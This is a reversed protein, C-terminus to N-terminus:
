SKRRSGSLALARRCPWGTQRHTYGGSAQWKGAVTADVLPSSAGTGAGATMAVPRPDIPDELDPTECRGQLNVGPRTCRASNEVGDGNDRRDADCPGCKWCRCNDCAGHSRLAMCPAAPALARPVRGSARRRFGGVDRGRGLRFVADAIRFSARRGCGAPQHGLAGGRPDCAGRCPHRRGLPSIAARTPRVLGTFLRGGALATRAHAGDRCGRCVGGRYIGAPALCAAPEDGRRRGTRWHRHCACGM